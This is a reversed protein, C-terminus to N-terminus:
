NESYFKEENEDLKTKFLHTNKFYKTCVIAAKKVDANKATHFSSYIIENFDRRIEYFYMRDFKNLVSYVDLIYKEDENNALATEVLKMVDTPDIVDQRYSAVEVLNKILIKNTDFVGDLIDDVNCEILDIASYNKMKEEIHIFSEVSGEDSLIKNVISVMKDIDGNDICKALFSYAADYDLNELKVDNINKNLEYVKGIRNFNDNLEEIVETPKSSLKINNVLFQVYDSVNGNEEYFFDSNDRIFEFTEDFNDKSITQGMREFLVNMVNDPIEVKVNKFMELAEQPYYNYNDAVTELYKTYGAEDIYDYTQNVIDKVTMFYIKNNSNNKYGELIKDFNNATFDRLDDKEDILKVLELVEQIRLDSIDEDGDIYSLLSKDKYMVETKVKTLYMLTSINEIEIKQTQKLFNNLPRYKTTFFQKLEDDLNEYVSRLEDIEMNYLHTITELYGPERFLLNYLEPFDSQIVSIKALEFDFKNSNVYSDDVVGLEARNKILMKNNVFNNILKKVHRPTNVNKYILVNRVVKEFNGLETYENIFNPITEKALDVAYDKININAIHPVDIKFQFLKDLIKEFKLPKYNSSLKVENRVDIAKRIVKEDFPVIFVCNEYDKCYKLEELAKLMKGASLKDIDEIIIINKRTNDIIPNTVVVYSNSNNETFESVNSVVSEDTKINKKTTKLLTSVIYSIVTLGLAFILILWLNERYNLYTNEVFFIDNGKYIDRSQFYEMLVFILTTILFCALFVLVARGCKLLRKIMAKRADVKDAAIDEKIEKENDGFAKDITEQISQEPNKAIVSESEVRQVTESTLNTKLSIEEEKWANIRKVNYNEEDKEYKEVALNIISSKGIGSKGTVAITLPAETNDIILNINKAVDKSSLKDQEITTLEDDRIFYKKLNENM